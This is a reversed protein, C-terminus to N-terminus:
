SEAALWLGSRGGEKRILRVSAIEIGRDTHKAAAKCMDIMTLAAVSAGTLAEMEVGTRDVARVSCEIGVTSATMDPAGVSVDVGALSIPHCLPILGPTSKAGGIGAITAVTAM